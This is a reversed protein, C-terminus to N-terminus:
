KCDSPCEGDIVDGRVVIYLKAVPDRMWSMKKPKAVACFTIQLM